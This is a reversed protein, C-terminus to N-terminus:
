QSQNIVYYNVQLNKSLLSPFTVNFRLNQWKAIIRM